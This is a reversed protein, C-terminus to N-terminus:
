RPIEVPSRTPILDYFEVTIDHGQDDKTKVKNDLVKAKSKLPIRISYFSGDGSFMGEYVFRVHENTVEFTHCMKSINKIKAAASNCGALNWYEGFTFEGLCHKNSYYM